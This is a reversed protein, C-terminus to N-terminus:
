DTKKLKMLEKGDKDLLFLHLNELKYKKVQQIIKNFQDPIKMNPCMKKTGAFVGFELDTEDLKNIKGRFHNCGDNGMARMEALHIEIMPRNKVNALVEGQISELAWIDNLRQNIQKKKAIFALLEDGKEDYFVLMSQKIEFTKIAGLAKLYEPEINRNMCAKRTSVINGFQITKQTLEELPGSYTNCGGSGSVRMEDLNINITPLAVSRNIPGKNIRALLWEGAVLAKHDLQKELVEVLTYKISSADAPVQDLPIKEEKVRLKYIYGPEFDFGEIPAFFSEWASESLKESKQVQLCKMPAVGMCDVKSSNVWYTFENNKTTSCSFLVVLLLLSLIRNM